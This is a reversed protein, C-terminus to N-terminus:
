LDHFLHGSGHARSCTHFVRGATSATVDAAARGACSRNQQVASFHPGDPRAVLIFDEEATTRNAAPSIVPRLRRDFARRCLRDTPRCRPPRLFTIWWDRPLRAALCGTPVGDVRPGAWDCGGQEERGCGWRATTGTGSLVICIAARPQDQALSRFFYDIPLRFGRARGTGTSALANV